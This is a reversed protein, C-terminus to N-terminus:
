KGAIKQSRNGSDMGQVTCREMKPSFQIPCDPSLLNKQSMRIVYRSDTVNMSAGSNQVMVKLWALGTLLEPQENM